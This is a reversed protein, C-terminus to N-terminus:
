ERIIKAIGGQSNVYNIFDNQENTTKVNGTKFEIATFVAIEKGVDKETIKIKTWGFTDPFGAPLGTKFPRPNALTLNKACKNIIKGQWGMGINVRFLRNGNKSFKLRWKKILNSEKISM